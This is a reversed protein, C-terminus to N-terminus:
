ASSSASEALCIARSIPHPVPEPIMAAWRPPRPDSLTGLNFREVWICAEAPKMHDRLLRLIKVGDVIVVSYRGYM